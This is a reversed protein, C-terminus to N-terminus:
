SFDYDDELGSKILMHQRGVRDNEIAAVKQLEASLELFGLAALVGAVACPVGLVLLVLLGRMFHTKQESM